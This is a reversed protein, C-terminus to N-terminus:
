RRFREFPKLHKGFRRLCTRHLYSRQQEFLGHLRRHIMSLSPLCNGTTSLAGIPTNFGWSAHRNVGVSAPLISRGRPEVRGESHHLAHWSLRAPNREKRKVM